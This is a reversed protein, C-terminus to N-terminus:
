SIIAKNHKAKNHFNNLYKETTVQYACVAVNNIYLFCKDYIHRKVSTILYQSFSHSVTQASQWTLTWGPSNLTYEGKFQLKPLNPLLTPQIFSPLHLWFIQERLHQQAGPAKRSPGMDKGCLTPPFIPEQDHNWFCYTRSGPRMNLYDLHLRCDKSHYSFM